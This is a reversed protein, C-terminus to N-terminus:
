INPHLIELLERLEQKINKVRAEHEPKTENLISRLKWYPYMEIIGVLVQRDDDDSIMRFILGYDLIDGKFMDEWTINGSGEPDGTSVTMEELPTTNMEYKAYKAIEEQMASMIRLYALAVFSGRGPVYKEKAKILGIYGTQVLDVRYRHLWQGFKVTLNNYVKLVLNKYNMVDIEKRTKPYTMRQKIAKLEKKTKM